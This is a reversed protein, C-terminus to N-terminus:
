ERGNPSYSLPVASLEQESHEASRYLYVFPLPFLLLRVTFASRCADRKRRVVSLPRSLRTSSLTFAYQMERRAFPVLVFFFDGYFSYWHRQAATTESHSDISFPLDPTQVPHAASLRSSPTLTHVSQPRRASAAYSSLFFPHYINCYVTILMRKCVRLGDSLRSVM